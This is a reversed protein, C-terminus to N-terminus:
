RSIILRMIHGYWCIREPKAPQTLVTPRLRLRSLSIALQGLHVMSRMLLFKCMSKVGNQRAEDLLVQTGLINAIIFQEPNEISRDVHSEAAFNVVYDIKETAFIHGVAPRDSIDVRFFLYNPNGEVSKLNALNGAYTLVDINIVRYSPYKDLIYRIFNSGIFGAGGTVMLNAM